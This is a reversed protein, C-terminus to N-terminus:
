AALEEFELQLEVFEDETINRQNPLEVVVISDMCEDPDLM